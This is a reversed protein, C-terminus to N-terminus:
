CSSGGGLTSTRRSALRSPHLRVRRLCRCFGCFGVCGCVRCFRCCVISGLLRRANQAGGLPQVPDDLGALLVQGHEDSHQLSQCRSQFSMVFARLSQSPSQFSQVRVHSFRRKSRSHCAKSQGFPKCTHQLPQIADKRVLAIECLTLNSQFSAAASHQAAQQACVENLAAPPQTPM